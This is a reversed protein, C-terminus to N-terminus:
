SRAEALADLNWGKRKSPRAGASDPPGGPRVRSQFLHDTARATRKSARERQARGSRDDVAAVLLALHGSIASDPSLQLEVRVESM